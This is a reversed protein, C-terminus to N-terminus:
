ATIYAGVGALVAILILWLLSLVFVRYANDSGAPRRAIFIILLPFVLAGLFAMVLFIFSLTNLLGM